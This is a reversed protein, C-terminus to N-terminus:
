LQAVTFASGDKDPFAPFYKVLSPLVAVQAVTSVVILGISKIPAYYMALYPLM